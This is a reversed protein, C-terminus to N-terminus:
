LGIEELSNVTEAKNAIISGSKIVPKEMTRWELRELALLVASEPTFGDGYDYEMTPTRLSCRWLDHEIQFLNNVLKGSEAVRALAEALTM